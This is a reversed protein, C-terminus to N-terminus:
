MYQSNKFCREERRVEQAPDTHSIEAQTFEIFVNILPLNQYLIKDTGHRKSLHSLKFTYKASYIFHM